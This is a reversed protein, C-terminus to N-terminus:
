YLLGTLSGTGCLRPAVIEELEEVELDAVITQNHNVSLTPAIVAEMEEVNLDSEEIYTTQMQDGKAGQKLAMTASEGAAATEIPDSSTEHGRSGVM